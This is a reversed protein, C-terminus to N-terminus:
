EPVERLGEVPRRQQKWPLEAREIRNLRFLRDMAGILRAKGIGKSEPMAAFITPAYTSSVRESVARQQRTREALCTLFLDNDRSCGAIEALEARRDDPLDEDRIFAGEHWRFLTEGGTKSYNAKPNRLRRMDEDPTDPRDMFLRSRFQNEYAVSGLWEAGNKNPHHLLVGARPGKHCSNENVTALRNLWHAFAGVEGIKDHDGCYVQTANDFVFLGGTADISRAVQVGRPTPVGHGAEAIEFLFTDDEDVMSVLNLWDGGAHLGVGLARCIAEQRIWLEDHDDEWSMYLAPMERVPYGLFPRGLATCTCLMQALLSKGVGGRGTLLTTKFLPMLGDVAWQRVPVPLQALHELDLFPLDSL